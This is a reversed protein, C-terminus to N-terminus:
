DDRPIEVFAREKLRWLQGKTRNEFKEKSPLLFHIKKRFRIQTLLPMDPSTFAEPTSPIHAGEPGVFSPLHETPLPTFSFNNSANSEGRAEQIMRASSMTQQHMPVPLPSDGLFHASTVQSSASAPATDLPSTNGRRTGINARGREIIGHERPELEDMIESTSRMSDKAWIPMEEDIEFEEIANDIDGM